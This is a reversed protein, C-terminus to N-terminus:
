AARRLDENSPSLTDPVTAYRRGSRWAIFGLVVLIALGLLGWVLAQTSSWSVRDSSTQQALKHEAQAATNQMALASKEMQSDSKEQYENATIADNTHDQDQEIAVIASGSNANASSPQASNQEHKPLDQAPTPAVFAIMLLAFYAPRLTM